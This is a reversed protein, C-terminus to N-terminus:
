SGAMSSGPLVTALPTGASIIEGLPSLPRVPGTVAPSGNVWDVRVAMGTTPPYFGICPVTVTVTGPDFDEFFVDVRPCPAADVFATLIPASM